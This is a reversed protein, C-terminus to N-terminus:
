QVLSFGAGTWAGTGGGLSRVNEYGLMRLLSM